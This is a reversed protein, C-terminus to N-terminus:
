IIIMGILWAITIILPFIMAKSANENDSGIIENLIVIYIVPLWTFGTFLSILWRIGVIQFTEQTNNDFEKLQIFLLIQIIFSLAVFLMSPILLFLNHANLIGDYNMHLTVLQM